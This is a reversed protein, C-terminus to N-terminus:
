VWAKLQLNGSKYTVETVGAPPKEALHTQPSPGTTTLKTKHTKRAEAYDQTQEPFDTPRIAMWGLGVLGGCCGLGLLAVLVLILIIWKMPSGRRPRDDYERYSSPSRVPVMAGCQPCRVRRANADEPDLDFRANCERCRLMRPRM